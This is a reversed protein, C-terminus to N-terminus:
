PEMKLIGALRLGLIFEADLLALDGSVFRAQRRVNEEGPLPRLNKWNFCLRRHDEVSLDFLKCPVIHDVHWEGYNSWSMGSQFQKEIHGRLQKPTCGFEMSKRAGNERLFDRLRRSLNRTMRTKPKKSQRKRLIRWQDPNAERWQKDYKAKASKNAARWRRARARRIERVDESFSNYRNQIAVRNAYYYALARERQKQPTKLQKQETAGSIEVRGQSVVLNPNSTLNEMEVM